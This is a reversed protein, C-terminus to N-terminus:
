LNYESKLYNHINTLDENSISEDAIILEAIDGDLYNSLWGGARGIAFEGATGGCTTAGTSTPTIAQAIGNKWIEQFNAGDTYRTSHIAFTSNSFVASSSNGSSSNTGDGFVYNQNGQLGAAGNNQIVGWFDRGASSFTSATFAQSLTINTTCGVVIVTFNAPKGLTTALSLFHTNARTFRVVPLNNIVNDVWLPQRAATTQSPSGGLNPILNEWRTVNDAGTLTIYPKSAKCWVQVGPVYPVLMQEALNVSIRQSNIFKTSITRTSITKTSIM